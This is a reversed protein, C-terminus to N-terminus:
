EINQVFERVKELASKIEFGHRSVTIDGAKSGLTNIERGMEQLVFELKRGAEDGKRVLEAFQDLHAALRAVEESVDSRDAFLAVERILHEAQIAIGADAVAQRVRDLVRQRYSATVTPLLGRISELEGAVTRHLALLEAAMAQGEERRMATLRGLATELTQEVIPWEDEPPTGHHRAEPVVGPLALVGALLPEVYETAGASVCAARIQQLYATLAAANLPLDTTRIPRDVRVHVTVPGRRVHRRVVKELEAEFMPYPDSGRVTVKLYRNNLARVEV